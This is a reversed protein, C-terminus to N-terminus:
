EGSTTSPIGSFTDVQSYQERRTQYKPMFEGQPDFVYAKAKIEEATQGMRDYPGKSLKQIWALWLRDPKLGFFNASESRFGKFFFERGLPATHLTMMLFCLLVWGTLAAFVYSGIQDFPNKFRVSVKSVNDTIIKFLGFAVGFILWLSILDWFMTGSPMKETLFEALPEFFNTALIGAIVVNFFNIANSWMGERMLTAFVSVVLVFLLLPLFYSM